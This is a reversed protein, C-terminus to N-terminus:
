KRNKSDMAMGARMDLRGHAARRSIWRSSSRRLFNAATAFPRITFFDDGGGGIGLTAAPAGMWFFDVAGIGRLGAAAAVMFGTRDTGNPSRACLHVPGFRRSGIGKAMFIEPTALRPIWFDGAGIGRLGAAAAM